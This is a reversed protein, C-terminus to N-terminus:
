PPYGNHQSHLRPLTPMGLSTTGTIEGQRNVSATSGHHVFLEQRLAARVDTLSM